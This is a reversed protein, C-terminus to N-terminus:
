VILCDLLWAVLFVEEVGQAVQAVVFVLDDEEVGEVAGM